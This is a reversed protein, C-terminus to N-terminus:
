KDVVRREILSYHRFKRPMHSGISGIVVVAILIPVRVDWLWLILCLLLIKIVVLAGRGECWYRWNPYAEILMLIMGTLVALWVWPLLRIREIAFVHGGLLIGAMGIHVTRTVINSLRSLPVAYFLSESPQETM